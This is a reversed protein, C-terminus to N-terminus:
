DIDEVVHELMERLRIIDDTVFNEEVANIEELALIKLVNILACVQNKNFSDIREPQEIHILFQQFHDDPHKLILRVLGPIFYLFAHNSAFCIPDWGPNNLKDLPLNQPNLNSMTKNHEWCECCQCTGRIFIEPRTIGAFVSDIENIVDTRKM